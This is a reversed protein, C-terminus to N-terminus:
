QTTAQTQMNGSAMDAQLTDTYHHHTQCTCQLLSSSAEMTRVKVADRRRYKGDVDLVVGTCFPATLLYYIAQGMDSPQGVKQLPLSAATNDLMRQKREEPM